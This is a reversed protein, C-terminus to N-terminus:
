FVLASDRAPPSSPPTVVPGAPEVGPQLQPRYANAPAQALAAPALTSPAVPVGNVSVQLPRALDQAIAASLPQVTAAESRVMAALRVPQSEAALVSDAVGAAAIRRALRAHDGGATAIASQTRRDLGAMAVAQADRALSAFVKQVYGDRYGSSFNGSYYCSFAKGWDQGARQHCEALIRAGAQVNPCVAFAQAYDGLGQRDLNYRNVQVLGVSFNRGQQELMQATSVAEALNRPQRVLRGGVVGIAYPNYSSEVAAVHQMVQAPVALDTCAAIMELGPLM